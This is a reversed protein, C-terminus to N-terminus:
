SALSADLYSLRGEPFREVHLSSQPGPTRLRGAPLILAVLIGVIGIVVLLEILSFGHSQSNAQNKHATNMM